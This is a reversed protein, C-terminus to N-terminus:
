SFERDKLLLPAALSWIYLLCTLWQSVIKIWMTEAGVDYSTTNDEVEQRSSWNTLIMAMYMCGSAMIFHFKANRMAQVAGLPAPEDDEADAAAVAKAEKKDDSSSSAAAPDAKM